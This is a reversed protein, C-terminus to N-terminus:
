FNYIIQNEEDYTLTNCIDDSVYLDLMKGTMYSINTWKDKAMSLEELQDHEITCSFLEKEDTRVALFQLAIVESLDVNKSIDDITKFCKDLTYLPTDYQVKVALIGDNFYVEQENDLTDEVQTTIPINAKPIINCGVSSITITSSLLAIAMAKTLKNTKM